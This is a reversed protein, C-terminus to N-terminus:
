HKLLLQLIGEKVCFKIEERIQMVIRNKWTANLLTKKPTNNEEDAYQLM